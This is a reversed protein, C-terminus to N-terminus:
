TIRVMDDLLRGEVRLEWMPVAAEDNEQFYMDNASILSKVKEPERGAIFTHSIYIRLRKKIKQPRKLAEQVDMKKRTITSDLKQEFALLDM